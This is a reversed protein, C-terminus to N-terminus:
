KKRAISDTPSSADADQGAAIALTSRTGEAVQEFATRLQALARAATSRVSAPRWRLAAAIERDTLGEYYRLVLVARQRESLVGLAVWVEDREEIAATPDRLSEPGADLLELGSVEGVRRRRHARLHCNTLVKKAYADRHVAAQVRPWHKYIALLAEQTLDEAAQRQGTLLYALNFLSAASSLAFADFDGTADAM